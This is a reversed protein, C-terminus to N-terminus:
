RGLNGIFCSMLIISEGYVILKEKTLTIKKKLVKAAEDCVLEPEQLETFSANFLPL